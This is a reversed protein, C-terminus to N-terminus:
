RSVMIPRLLFTRKLSHNFDQQLITQVVKIRSTVMKVRVDMEGRWKALQRQADFVSLLSSENHVFIIVEAYKM